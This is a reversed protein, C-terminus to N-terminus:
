GWYITRRRYRHRRGEPAAGNAGATGLGRERGEAAM